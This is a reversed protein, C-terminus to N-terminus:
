SLKTNIESTHLAGDRLLAKAFIEAERTALDGAAMRALEKYRSSGNASAVIVEIQSGSEIKTNSKRIVIHRDAMAALSPCHTITIVQTGRSTSSTRTQDSLMKSLAVVARGGVHADIEDYIVTVPPVGISDESDGNISKAFTGSKCSAGVAGPLDTEIALLIRAKEGSSAVTEILGGREINNSIRIKEKSLMNESTGSKGHLLLFDVRDIGLQSGNSTAFDTCNVLQAQFTSDDMGLSPLRDSISRTLNNCVCMRSSFLEHYAFSFDEFAFTEDEKARPLEMRTEVNGNLEQQLSKHCSPLAFSSIGHKRSLSGWDVILEDIDEVSVHIERRLIELSAILGKPDDEMFRSCKILANELENLLENSEEVAKSIPDNDRFGSSTDILHNRAKELAYVVSESSSMSTLAECSLHAAALQSDLGKVCDRFDLLNSYLSNSIDSIGNPGKLSDNRWTIQLFSSLVRVFSKEESGNNEKTLMRNTGGSSRLSEQFKCVRDEFIELEDVWHQLLEDNSDDDDSASFSSPLIRNELEFELEERKRKMKIYNVKSERAANKINNPVGMDIIAMRSEPQALSSSATAADVITLLPSAIIRLAKLTVQKGNVECRSKLRLKGNKQTEISLIRKLALKPIDSEEMLSQHKEPLGALYM